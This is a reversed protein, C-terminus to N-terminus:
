KNQHESDYDYPVKRHLEKWGDEIRFKLRTVGLSWSLRLGLKKKLQSLIKSTLLTMHWARHLEVATRITFAMGLAYEEGFQEKLKMCVRYLDKPLLKIDFTKLHQFQIYHRISNNRALVAAKGNKSATM